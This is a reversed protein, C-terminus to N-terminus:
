FWGLESPQPFSRGDALGWYVGWGVMVLAAYPTIMDAWDTTM